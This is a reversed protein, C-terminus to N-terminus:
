PSQRYHAIEKAVGAEKSLRAPQKTALFAEFESLKHRKKSQNSEPGIAFDESCQISELAMHTAQEYCLSLDRESLFALDKFRPDLFSAVRCLDTDDRDTLRSKIAQTQTTAICRECCAEACWCWSGDEAVFFGTAVPEVMSLSPQCKYSLLKTAEVLPELLPM